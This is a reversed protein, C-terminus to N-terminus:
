EKPEYRYGKGEMCERFAKDRAIAKINEGIQAWNRKTYDYVPKCQLNYNSYSSSSGFSYYYTSGHSSGSCNYGSIEPEPLPKQPYLTNAYNQCEQYDLTAEFYGKGPPAKWV